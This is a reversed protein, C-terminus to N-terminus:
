MSRWKKNNKKMKLCTSIKCKVMMPRDEKQTKPRKFCKKSKKKKLNVELSPWCLLANLVACSKFGVLLDSLFLCITNEQCLGRRARNQMLIFYRFLGGARWGEWKTQCYSVFILWMSVCVCGFESWLCCFLIVLAANCCNKWVQAYSFHFQRWVEGLCSTLFCWDSPLLFLVISALASM